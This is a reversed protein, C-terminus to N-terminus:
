RSNAWFYGARNSTNVAVFFDGCRFAARSSVLEGREISDPWWSPASRIHRPVDTAQKCDSQLRHLVPDNLAFQGRVENTDLDHWERIDTVDPNLVAPLWGHEFGGAQAAAAVTPYHSEPQENCGTMTAAVVLVLVAQIMTGKVVLVKRWLPLM